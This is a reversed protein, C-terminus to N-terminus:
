SRLVSCLGIYCMGQSVYFVLCGLERLMWALVFLTTSKGSGPPGDVVDIFSYGFDICFLNKMRETDIPRREAAERAIRVMPKRLLVTLSQQHPQGVKLKELERPLPEPWKELNM